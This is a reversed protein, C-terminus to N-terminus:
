TWQVKFRLESERGSAYFGSKWENSTIESVLNTMKLRMGSCYSDCWLRGDVELCERISCVRFASLQSIHFERRVIMKEWNHVSITVHCLWSGSWMSHSLEDRIGFDFEHDDVYLLRMAETTLLYRIVLISFGHGLSSEFFLGSMVRLRVFLVISVLYYVFLQKLM